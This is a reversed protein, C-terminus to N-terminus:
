QQTSRVKGLLEQEYETICMTFENVTSLINLFYGYYRCKQAEQSYTCAFAM